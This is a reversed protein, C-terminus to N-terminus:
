HTLHFSEAMANFIDLVAKMDADHQSNYQDILSPDSVYLGAGNAGHDFFDVRYCTNNMITDYAIENYLNGAAADHNETRMFTQGNLSFTSTASNPYGAGAALDPCTSSAVITVKAEDQLPWRFAQKPFAFVEANGESNLIMTTPYKVSYGLQTNTYTKWSSTDISSTAFTWATPTSSATMDPTTSASQDVPFTNPPITNEKKSLTYGFYVAVAILALIILILITKLFTKM